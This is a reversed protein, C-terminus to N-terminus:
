VRNLHPLRECKGDNTVEFVEINNSFSLTYLYSSGTPSDEIAIDIIRGRAEGFNDVFFREITPIWGILYLYNIM